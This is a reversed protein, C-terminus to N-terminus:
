HGRHDKMPDGYVESGHKKYTLQWCTPVVVDKVECSINIVTLELATM